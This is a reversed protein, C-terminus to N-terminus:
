NVMYRANRIKALDLEGMKPPDPFILSVTNNKKNVIKESVKREKDEVEEDRNRSKITIWTQINSNITKEYVLINHDRLTQLIRAHFTKLFDEKSYIEIFEEKISRELIGLDNPITGFCDHIGIININNKNIINALHAADLSHIVNPVIAQKQKLTNTEKNFNKGAERKKNYPTSIVM